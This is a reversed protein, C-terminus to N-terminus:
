DKKVGCSTCTWADKGSVRSRSKNHVRMGRGYKSDQYEQKCSCPKIM